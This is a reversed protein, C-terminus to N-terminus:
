SQIGCTIRHLRHFFAAVLRLNKKVLIPAISKAEDINPFTCFVIISSEGM